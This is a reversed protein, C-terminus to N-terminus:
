MLVQWTYCDFYSLYERTPTSKKKFRTPAIIVHVSALPVLAPQGLVVVGSDLDTLIQEILSANGLIAEDDVMGLARDEHPQEKAAM